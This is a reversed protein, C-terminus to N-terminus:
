RVSVNWRSLKRTCDKELETHFDAQGQRGSFYSHLLTFVIGWFKRILKTIPWIELRIEKQEFGSCPTATRYGPHFLSTRQRAGRGATQLEQLERSLSWKYLLTMGHLCFIGLSNCYSLQLLANGGSKEKNLSKHKIKLLWHKLKASHSSCPKIKRHFSSVIGTDIAM